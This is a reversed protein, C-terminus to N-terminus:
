LTQVSAPRGTTTVEDISQAVVQRRWAAHSVVAVVVFIAASRGVYGVAALTAGGLAQGAVIAATGSLSILLFPVPFSRERGHSYAIVLLSSTAYVIPVVLLMVQTVPVAGDYSSGFVLPILVPALLIGAAALVAGVAGLAGAIKWPATRKAAQTAMFPYLAHAFTAPLLLAPGLVRDGIAFWAASTASLTLLVLTDLRPVLHLSAANFALPLSARATDIADRPSPGRFPLRHWWFVVVGDFAVRSLGAALYAVGIAGLGRNSAVVAVLLVILAGKEVLSASLVLRVRRRARPYTELANASATLAGYVLLCLLAITVAVGPRAVTAWVMAAVVLPTAVVVNVLVGSCVLRGARPGAATSATGGAFMASMERLLWAGLGFDAVFALAMSLGVFASFVGWDDPDLTRAIMIAAFSTAIVTLVQSALLQSSDGIWSRTWRSPASSANQDTAM